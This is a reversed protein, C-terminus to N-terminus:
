KCCRRACQGKRIPMTSSDTSGETFVAYQNKLLDGVVERLAISTSPHLHAHHPPLCFTTAKPDTGAVFGGQLAEGSVKLM